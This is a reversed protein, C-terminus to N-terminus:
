RGIGWALKAAIQQTAYGSVSLDGSAELGLMWARAVRGEIGIGAGPLPTVAVGRRTGALADIPPSGDVVVRARAVAYLRIAALLTLGARLEAILDLDGGSVTDPAVERDDLFIPLDVGVRLAAFALEASLGWAIRPAVVMTSAGHLSAGLGAVFGLGLGVDGAIGLPPLGTAVTLDVDGGHMSGPDLASRFRTPYLTPRVRGPAANTTGHEDDQARVLSSGSAVVTAVLAALCAVRSSPAIM